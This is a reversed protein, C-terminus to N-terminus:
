LHGLDVSIRQVIGTLTALQAQTRRQAEALAQTEKTVHTMQEALRGMQEPLALLEDILILRRLDARWEPHPELLRVVDHFDRIEPISTGAM